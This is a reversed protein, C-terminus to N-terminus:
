DKRDAAEIKEHAHEQLTADTNFRTLAQQIILTILDNATIKGAWSAVEAAFLREIRIVVHGVEVINEPGEEINKLTYRQLAPGVDHDHIM